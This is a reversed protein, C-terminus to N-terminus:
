GPHLEDVLKGQILDALLSALLPHNNPMATRELSIGMRQAEGQGEVDLDYLIELHEMLFGVPALLFTSIGEAKSKQLVDLLRPGLWPQNGGGASQFATTWKSLGCMKALARATMEFQQAYPDNWEQIRAPLSHNTFIVLPAESHKSLSEEIGKSWLELFRPHLHWNGAFSWQLPRELQNNTQQVIKYYADSSLRSRFPALAVAVAQTLGSDSMERVVDGILPTSHKMAMHVKFRGPSGLNLTEQVAQAIHETISYLPSGGIAEYRKKLHQIEEETPETQRYHVLIHRLYESLNKEDLSSPSGYAM